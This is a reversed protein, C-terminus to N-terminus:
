NIALCECVSQLCKIHSTKKGQNEAPVDHVVFHKVLMGVQHPNEAHVLRDHLDHDVYESSVFRLHQMDEAKMDIGVCPNYHMIQELASLTTAIKTDAPIQSACGCVSRAKIFVGPPGRHTTEATPSDAASHPALSLVPLGSHPRSSARLHRPQQINMLLLFM